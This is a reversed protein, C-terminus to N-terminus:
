STIATLAEITAFEQVRLNSFHPNAIIEHWLETQRSADAAEASEFVYLGGYTNSEPDALWTKSRLGPVIAFAPAVAAAVELYQSEDIGDLEFTVIRIHM